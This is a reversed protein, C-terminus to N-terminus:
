KAAPRSPLTFCFTSGGGETDEVWIQGGHMEIIKKASTLGIGTGEYENRTHLRQFLVFIRDRYEPAIGIGNDSIRILWDGDKKHATVTIRPPQGPRRYKLANGIINQFVRVLEVPNGSIVPLDDAVQVSGGADALAMTLNDLAQLAVDRLNVIKDPEGHRGIRSYDLLDNILQSMRLAGERAYGIFEHADQDLSDGYRKALLDVYSVVMRLPEQLDHSAVYAFQELESNSAQLAATRQAVLSELKDRYSHLEGEVTKLIRSVEIAERPGHTLVVVPEGKGLAVVPDALARVSRSIKGGIVWAIMIGAVLLVAVMVYIITIRNLTEALVLTWPRSIGVSWGTKASRSFAIIVDLGELTRTEVIGEHDQTMRELLAPVGKKGVLKDALHTRAAIVGQPDFVAAMHGEPLRQDALLRQLTDPLLGISLVHTIEGDRRVPVDVSLVHRQLLGGIYLDSILPIGHTFVKEVQNLNGHRALPDGYPRLTNLIQQGSRDTVVITFGPFSDTLVAKAEAHFSALDGTRLRPSLALAQAVNLSISFERDMAATLARATQLTDTQVQAKQNEYLVLALLALAVVLPATATLASAFLRTRISAGSQM